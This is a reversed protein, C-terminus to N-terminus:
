FLTLQNEDPQRASPRAPPRFQTTDLSCRDEKALNLKRCALKFRSAILEAYAGTGHMRKHFTSDYDRGGRTERVMSMVRKAQGPATDELWETFLDKIELPLRLLIYGAEGAGAEAARELIRELETDNLAPILPSAMVGTPIGAAALQGIAELRREPTPARPEM